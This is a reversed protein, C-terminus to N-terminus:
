IPLKISKVRRSYRLVSKKRDSYCWFTEVGIKTELCIESACSTSKIIVSHICVCVGLNHVIEAYNKCLFWKLFLENSMVFSSSPAAAAATAVTWYQKCLENNSRTNLQIPAWFLHVSSVYLINSELRWEVQITKFKFWRQHYNAKINNTQKTDNSFCRGSACRSRFYKGTLCQRTTTTRHLQLFLSLFVCFSYNHSNNAFFGRCLGVVNLM